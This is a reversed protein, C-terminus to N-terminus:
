LERSCRSVIERIDQLRKTNRTDGYYYRRELKVIERAAKEFESMNKRMEQNLEELQAKVEDLPENM